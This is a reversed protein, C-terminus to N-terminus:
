NQPPTKTKKRELTSTHSPPLPHNPVAWVFTYFHTSISAPTLTASSSIKGTNAARLGM